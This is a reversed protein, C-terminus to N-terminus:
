ACFAPKRGDERPDPHCPRDDGRQPHSVGDGALWRAVAKVSLAQPVIESAHQAAEPLSALQQQLTPDSLSGIDRHAVVVLLPIAGCNVLLANLTQLSAADSWQLDDLVLVLPCGQSAFTKVLALVMHSFRARADISFTDASFRPKSELLLGLEPVLSVALEEYGELARSLRIIWKAVEDAPLGLLHLTLTRFASSLVGYPLSPSFQDVKGVALLVARQQLTKLATAIISSKGIGSPGGITVLEPVRNQGVREFAAIVDNAQPHTAFLSDALHIAPTRDQQGPTFAVIEGECTLTAQCRRLDAILGDVTQYRNDPHKELLKLIITSLMGPVDPRIADPALPASAIHYHAWNTQDDEGLEFPLRGTLLEYLVMGLSYLDSRNDVPRQTRSTHEPSMWAPTGGSVALRTQSFADSLTCSLGFSGLRCTADHQVFISGHIAVPKVSM